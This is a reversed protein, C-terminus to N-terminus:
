SILSFIIDDLVGELKRTSRDVLQLITPTTCINSLQLEDMTGKEIVNIAEGLDILTNAIAVNNIHSKLISSGPYVYKQMYTKGLILYALKGIVQMTKPDKKKKGLKNICLERVIKAYIPIDKIAQLLPIKICVNKLDDLLDYGYQKIKKELALREPFPPTSSQQAQNIVSSSTKKIVNSSDNNIIKNPSEEEIPEEIIILADKHLVKRSRLNIDNLDLPNIM